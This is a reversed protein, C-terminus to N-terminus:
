KQFSDSELPFYKNKEWSGKSSRERQISIIAFYGHSVEQFTESGIPSSSQTRQTKECSFFGWYSLSNRSSKFSAVSMRYRHHFDWLSVISPFYELIYNHGHLDKVNGNLIFFDECYLVEFLVDFFRSSFSDVRSIRYPEYNSIDWM